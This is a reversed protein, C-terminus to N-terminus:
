PTCKSEEKSVVLIGCDPCTDTNSPPSIRNWKAGCECSFQTDIITDEPSINEPQGHYIEFHANIVDELLDATTEIITFMDRTNIDLVADKGLTCLKRIKDLKEIMPKSAGTSSEWAELAEHIDLRVGDDNTLLNAITKGIDTVPEYITM